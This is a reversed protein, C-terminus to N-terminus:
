EAGEDRVALAQQYVERRPRDYVGAVVDRVTAVPVGAEVLGRILAAVREEDEPREPEPDGEVVLTLEGRVPDEDALSAELVSLPGRVWAEWEKTLSRALAARRDGWTERIAALTEVVRHPAEYLVITARERRRGELVKARPGPDRPLFGLFLFRDPPLGSGALAV